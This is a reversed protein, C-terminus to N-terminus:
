TAWPAHTSNNHYVWHGNLSSIHYYLPITIKTFWIVEDSQFNTETCDPLEHFMGVLFEDVNVYNSIGLDMVVLSQYFNCNHLRFMFFQFYQADLCYIILWYNVLDLNEQENSGSATLSQIGRSQHFM